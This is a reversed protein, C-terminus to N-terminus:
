HLAQRADAGDADTQEVLVGDVQGAALAMLRIEADHFSAAKLYVTWMEGEHEYSVLYTEFDRM